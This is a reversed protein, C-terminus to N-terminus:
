LIPSRLVTKLKQVGFCRGHLGLSDLRLQRLYASICFIADLIYNLGIWVFSDILHNLTTLVRPEKENKVFIISVLHKPVTHSVQSWLIVLIFILAESVPM